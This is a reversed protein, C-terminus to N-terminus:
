RFTNSKSSIQHWQITNKVTRGLPYIMWAIILIVMLKKVSFKQKVYTNEFSKFFLLGWFPMIVSIFRDAEGYDVTYGAVNIVVVLNLFFLYIVSIIFILQLLSDKNMENKLFKVFLWFVAILIPVSFYHTPLFTKILVHALSNVNLVAHQFLEKSFDFHEHPVLVWVYVNWILLGSSVSFFFVLLKLIKHPWNEENMFLWIVAGFAIFLGANRQLCMFFGIVIAYYFSKRNEQSRQLESVFTVVLLLFILESWLFSSILLFHVGILTFVLYLIRIWFHQITRKSINVIVLSSFVSVILNVWYYQVGFFKFFSLIVPFLPTWFLYFDGDNDILSLSNAFSASGAMYHYSDETLLLGFSHSYWQFILSVVIILYVIYKKM